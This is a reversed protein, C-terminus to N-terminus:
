KGNEIVDKISETMFIAQDRCAKSCVVDIVFKDGYNILYKRTRAAFSIGCFSCSKRFTKYKYGICKPAQYSQTM